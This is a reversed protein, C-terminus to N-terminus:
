YLISLGFSNKSYYENFCDKIENPSYYIIEFIKKKKM